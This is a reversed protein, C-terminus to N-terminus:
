VKNREEKWEGEGENVAAQLESLYGKRRLVTKEYEDKSKQEKVMQKRNKIFRSIMFATGALLILMFITYIAVAVRFKSKYAEDLVVIIQTTSTTTNV